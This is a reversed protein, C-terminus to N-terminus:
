TGIVAPPGCAGGRPCGRVCCRGGGLRLGQLTTASTSTGCSAAGCTPPNFPRLPARRRLRVAHHFLSRLCHHLSRSQRCRLTRHAPGGNPRRFTSRPRREFHRRACTTSTAGYWKATARWLGPAHDQWACFDALCGRASPTLSACWCRRGPRGHAYNRALHRKRGRPEAITPLM